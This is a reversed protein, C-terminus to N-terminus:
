SRSPSSRGTSSSANWWPSVAQSVPVPYRDVGRVRVTLRLPVPAPSGRRQSVRGLEALQEIRGRPQGCTGVTAHTLSLLWRGSQVGRYRRSARVAATCAIVSRAFGSASLIARATRSSAASTRATRWWSAPLLSAGSRCPASPPMSVDISKTPSALARRRFYLLVVPCLAKSVRAWGSSHGRSFQSRQRSAASSRSPAASRRTRPSLSRAGAPSSRSGRTPGAPRDGSPTM